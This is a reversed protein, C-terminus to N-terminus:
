QGPPNDISRVFAGPDLEEVMERILPAIPGLDYDGDISVPWENGYPCVTKAELTIQGDEQRTVTLSCEGYNGIRRTAVRKV